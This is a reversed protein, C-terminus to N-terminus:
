SAIPEEQRWQSGSIKAAAIVAQTRSEVGLKQLIASVHAKITAESVGLEYAIQKNLLGESLMMLVRVQQPTLTVLRDRLKSTEPDAAASLDVDPPVWVDGDLVRLIAEGLKEVGFRKPVFGSAGFDLSRRITEVDDSASVVVVPIAPYQARLYILGSFGSIGPMKLDLLVLDVDGERELMATLDEFSGVEGIKASSVVSAVALRLADRFLPHDDAIILHTSAPTSM